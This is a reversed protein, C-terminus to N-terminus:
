AGRRAESGSKPRSVRERLPAASRSERSIRRTRTAITMWILTPVLVSARTARLSM